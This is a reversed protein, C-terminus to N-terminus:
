GSKIGEFKVTVFSRSSKEISYVFVPVVMVTTVATATLLSITFKVVSNM